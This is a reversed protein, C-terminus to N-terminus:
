SSISSSSTSCTLTTCAKIGYNRSTFKDETSLQNCTADFKKNEGDNVARKVSCFDYQNSTSCSLECSQSITGVNNTKIWPLIASWGVMFGIVLIALVVLGLVILVIASTSLGQGRKNM